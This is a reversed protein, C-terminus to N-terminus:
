AARKADAMRIEATPLTEIYRRLSDGDVLTAKGCKLLRIQGTSALRYIQTRSIGSWAVARPLRMTIPLSDYAM